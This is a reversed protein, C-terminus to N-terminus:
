ERSPKTVHIAVTVGLVCCVRTLFRMHGYLRNMVFKLGSLLFFLRGSRDNSFSVSPRCRASRPGPRQGTRPSM